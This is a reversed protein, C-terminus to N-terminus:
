SSSKNNKNGDEINDSDEDNKNNLDRDGDEILAVYGNRAFEMLQEKGKGKMKLDSSDLELSSYESSGSTGSGNGGPFLEVERKRDM